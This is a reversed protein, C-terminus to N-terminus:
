RRPRRKSRSPAKARALRARPRAKVSSGRSPAPARTRAGAQPEVAATPAETVFADTDIEILAEPRALAGIELLTSAPPHAGFAERHARAIAPLEKMDTVYVRTRVVDALSGGMQELVRRINELTTRAQTYMQNIGAITGSEDTGTCGSVLIWNGARVARSFGFSSEAALGSNYRIVRANRTEDAM